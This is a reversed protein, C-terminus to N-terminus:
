FPLDDSLTRSDVPASVIEEPEQDDDSQEVRWVEITNFYIIKNDPSEWKRGKLNFHFTYNTGIKLDAIKEIREQTAQMKITQPYKEDCTEIVFEQKRFSEGHTTVDFKEILKGTIDM